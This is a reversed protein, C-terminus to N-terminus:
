KVELRTGLLATFCKAAGLAPLFCKREVGTVPGRGPGQGNGAVVSATLPRPLLCFRPCLNGALSLAPSVRRPVRMWDQATALAKQKQIGPLTRPPRCVPSEVRARPFTGSIKFIAGERVLGLLTEAQTGPRGTETDRSGRNARRRLLRVGTRPQARHGERPMCLRQARRPSLQNRFVRTGGVRLNPGLQARGAPGRGPQPGEPSSAVETGSSCGPAQPEDSVTLSGAGQPTGLSHVRCCSPTKSLLPKFVGLGRTQAQTRAGTIPWCRKAPPLRQCGPAAQLPGDAGPGTGSM